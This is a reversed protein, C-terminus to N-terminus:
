QIAQQLFRKIIAVLGPANEGRMISEHNGASEAFEFHLGTNQWSNTSRDNNDRAAVHLLPYAIQAPVSVQRVLQENTRAVAYIRKIRDLTLDVPVLKMASAYNYVNDIWGDTSFDVSESLAMPLQLGLAQPLLSAPNTKMVAPHFSDLMILGHIRHGQAQLREALSLALPGGLSQGILTWERIGTSVAASAYLEMLKALDAIPQVGEEVGPSRLGYIGTNTGWHQRLDQYCLVDGGVPHVFLLAPTQADGKQMEVLPGHLPANDSTTLWQALAAVSSTRLLQAVPLSVQLQQSLRTVLRVAMLSNGGLDFFERDVSVSERGLVTAYAAAITAELANRPALVDGDQDMQPAPLNKKDIKGAPTTPFADLVVIVSPVMYEPIRERMGTKIAIVDSQTGSHHPVIYGVLTPGGPLDKRVVVASEAVLPQAALVAEVEGLEIRFGRIKVQNDIRDLYEVTGDQLWRGLDGTKYITSGLTDAFPNPVFVDATKEPNQWYGNGVGIGSLCIEGPIGPPVLRMQEDVVFVNMNPLPKGIPVSRQDVPLPQRLINQIVDDAAETPGYANVVPIDPFLVLWENVMPVPVAEGTAMLWKLSPLSREQAPLSKVHEILLQWAVPVLEVVNVQYRAVLSFMKEANTVDNLVVVAGGCTVPGLFQWVSIDSSTPATQLFNFSSSFELVTREAEIHNLAGDHRILAGKPLGTSGSTYLMYAVDTSAVHVLPVTDAQRSILPWDGDIFIPKFTTAEGLKEQLAQQSVIIKAQSNERMYTIREQPYHADMPVYAAGTKLIGIVGILFDCSREVCLGVLDGRKVDHELLYHALQNSARELEAYTLSRVDDVIALADPHEAVQKQFRVHLPTGLDFPTRTNNWHQLLLDREENETVWQLDGIRLAGQEVIQHSISEIRSIMGLDNFLHPHYYLSLRLKGGVFTVVFQVNNAPDSPSGYPDEIVEGALEASQPTAHFYNFMFGVRGRPAFKSQAGLSLLRYDKTKKQYERAHEWLAEIPSDPLVVARPVVFPVEQIYCGPQMFHSQTRGAMTEQLTFDSDPRCYLNVMLAYLGKFYIAPTMKHKRCYNRIGAWHEDSIFQDIRRTKGAVPVPPPVTFDLPEVNALTHQWFALVDATDKTSRDESVHEIYIDPVFDFPEENLIASYCAALQQWLTVLSVGDFLAHHASLAIAFHNDVTRLVKFKILADRIPDYPCYIFDYLYNDVAEWGELRDSMDVYEFSIHTDKPVVLYAEDLGPNGSPWYRARAVGYHTFYRQVAERWADVNLPRTLHAVWGHSSQLSGPNVINDVFMDRQMHTLPIVDVYQSRDLRLRTMIDQKSELQLSNLPIDPTDLLANLIREFQRWLADITERRYLDTNYELAATIRGEAHQLSLTLDFNSASRGVKLPEIDIGALSTASVNGSLEAHSFLQFAVQVIPTHSVSRKIPLREVIKDLPINGHAFADLTARKVQSLIDELTTNQRWKTRIILSNIFFGILNELDPHHRGATPVGVSVDGRDNYRAILIQWAALTVMFPTINQAKALQEIKTVLTNDLRYNVVDGHTTQVAPREFDPPITNLQPADRLNDEWYRVHEEFLDSELWERQWRAFDTYQVRPIPLILPTRTVYSAYHTFLERQLIGVSVGDSAIHHMCFQLIHRENGASDSPLVLVKCRLLDDTELNFVTSRDQILFPEALSEVTMKGADTLTLVALTHPQYPAIHLRPGNEGDLFFRARLISHRRLTENYAFNLADVDFQGTVLLAFPMNNITSGPNLQEFYWLRSQGYSLPLIGEQSGSRLVPLAVGRESADLVTALEAITSNEFLTRVSLQTNFQKNVRAIISTALLSHGGISFFNDEVGIQERKLVDQWIAALQVETETQPPQYTQADVTFNAAPLAKRDVKGNPTLPMTDLAVYATPVMYDPLVARLKERLTAVALEPIALVYYAALYKTGAADTQPHVVGEKIGDIRNLISEIEGLEVRFGRIKVQHDLRGLCEIVGNSQYRALDGTRYIKNEGGSKFPNDIFREETLDQRYLYGKAVGEGGIYLEGPVGIPVPKLDNDLIYILTNAVPRGIPVNNGVVGSVRHVTSYVTTETPGYGNYLEAGRELLRMAMVPPMPEGGCVVKVTRTPRWDNNVLMHFTAPTAQIFTIQHEDIAQMMQVVDMSQERTALVITAGYLLPMFMELGAIDFSLSTVALLRDQPAIGIDQQMAAMFNMFARHHIQVGKPNGTSGSTYIVYALSDPTLGSINFTIPLAAAEPALQDMPLLLTGETPLLSLLRAHTLIVSPKADKIVYEIRSRPYEPDIPIYACGAKLVAVLAVVMDTTRDCCVGVFGGPVVGRSRLLNAWRNSNAELTEFSMAGDIAVLATKKSSALASQRVAEGLTMLRDYDLSTQNWTHLLCHKEDGTLIDLKGLPLAPNTLWVEALRCFQGVFRDVTTRDFLDTNYQLTAVYTGAQEEFSLSLEYKASEVTSVFPTVSVASAMAGQVLNADGDFPINQLSMMVQFLPSRSMDRTPDIAEVIEEFPIDQHEFADRSSKTLAGVLDALSTEPTPQTRITVMNVFFGIIPELELRDRGAVPTGIAFDQQGSYRGLMSAFLSMLVNFPTTGKERAFTHIDNRLNNSLEFRVADGNFSQVPPRTRDTPLALAPLGDLARKWYTLKSRRVEESLHQRQWVAFDAYQLPLVEIPMPRGAAYSLYATVVERVFLSMSWGDTVIHHAVFVYVWHGPAVDILSSRFLPTTSLDFVNAMVQGVMRQLQFEADKVENGLSLQETKWQGEAAISQFPGMEDEGFWTRLSEHRNVVDSVARQLAVVNLDGKLHIAVPVNYAYTGPELRDLVWLRQQAYSLPLRQERSVRMLPSVEVLQSARALATALGEITPSEMLERLRLVVGFEKAVRSAIKTALLSHGGLAFFNDHVGVRPLRLVDAWITALRQETDDRPAVYTDESSSLIPKPLAKRDIKGNPTLPFEDVVTYSTPHMFIPLHRAVNDRIQTLVIQPDVDSRLVLWACLIQPGQEDVVGVFCDVVSVAQQIVAQIEGVEIRYGRLKVQQDIRGLYEVDGSPLYRALDGTRYIRGEGLHNSAFAQETLASNGVYGAGVGDGGIWLEGVAGVPLLERAAGLVYLQVNYNPRGIPLRDNVAHDREIVHYAAIDTCETPGYSNVLQTPAQRYWRELRAFNIPEGGLFVWRLSDLQKTEVEEVVGYFASPACNLWSIKAKAILSALADPEYEQFDPIILTAGVLLPAWLNKQTLDFGIASMLLLKDASTMTFAQTYWHLLNVVSRQYVAAGKPVGTSGSTFIVYFLDGPQGELSCSVGNQLATDIAEDVHLVAVTEPLNEVLHPRSLVLTIDAAAIIHAIRGAPYSADIPVYTAGARLIGLLATMLHISRDFCVGVCAGPQVGSARLHGALAASMRDLEVYTLEQNGCSVAIANAHQQASKAFAQQVTQWVPYAHRTNNWENLLQNREVDDLLEIESLSRDPAKLWSDALTIFHRSFREITELDFLDTNFQLNAAFQGESEAVTLTLDFKATEYGANLTSISLENVHGLAPLIADADLPINQLVLMVQFLPSRSMDRTPSIAEVIEEFPIDQHEFADQSNKALVHIWEALRINPEPKVRLTVTNVFFGVISELELSSRGAVPSGIAFDDQGSYRGLLAAFLGLLVNFPTASNTRAFDSLRASTESSLAFRTAAGNFTQLVPRPRDTPLALVPLEALTQKWYQMKEAIREETLMGRQWVAFDAYQLPLAQWQLDINNSLAVYAQIVDSIFLGMSWGDTVIHHAVFVYIWDTEGTQLLVSRFLPARSLNFSTAFTNRVVDLPKRHQDDEGESFVVQETDWQHASLIMQFPGDADERFCTRLAEHRNIADSIAKKLAPANLSGSIQIALPVNYASNGPVLKDLIWLRQQAYSLPIRMQRNARVIDAGAEPRAGFTIKEALAAVTPSLMLDRLSISVNFTKRVRSVIQTALLSHGGLDFFSDTVGINSTKLVEEWLTVLTREIQNRPLTKSENRSVQSPAPLAKRDVKGNPTLPWAPLTIIHTPVMYDPLRSRLHERVSASDLHEASVIYAILKEEHVTVLCDNINDLANLATEIEGLEIRLGRVKVQFDKRGIYEISGDPLQRCLDGTKYIKGNGFPNDLFVSGTLEPRDVYGNGVCIGAVCLEGVLGPAVPVMAHDVIHLECNPVPLGIPILAQESQINDLVHFAVVDTCETPGYSNVLSAVCAASSLWPYLLPLRIPEGGLVVWRLSAVSAFYKKSAVLPYFASPACNVLTVKHDAIANRVIEDDFEDMVPLVIQGGALLPAFLNKQTLDFGFASIILTVDHENLALRHTYWEQLNVEGAHHVSAGKPLGTSGSTYIVYIEDHPTPKTDLDSAPFAHLAPADSDVDFLWADTDGIKELQCAESIVAKAGSDKVIYQIRECPYSAEVPVYAAGSKLIGLVAVLMDVRRSMLIAVRTGKGVGQNQLAHALRNSRANLEGYSLAHDGCYVAVKGAHERASQEFWEVVTGNHQASSVVKSIKAVQAQEDPLIFKLDALAQVGDDVIQASLWAVRELYRHDDFATRDVWLQMLYTDPLEKIFCQVTREVHASQMHTVIPQGQWQHQALFNFYNFQFFLSATETAHLQALVSYQRHNRVEKRYASFADYCQRLTVEPQLQSLPIMWPVAQYYVGLTDDKAFARGNQVENFIFNGEPRCYHRIMLATLLRFYDVPHTRNKKCFQQIKCTHEADLEFDLVEFDASRSAGPVKVVNLPSCDAFKSRWFTLTEASDVEKRRIDVYDAFRDEWVPLERNCGLADYISAIKDVLFVMTTGDMVIHHAKIALCWENVAQKYLRFAILEDSHIDYATYIWSQMKSLKQAHPLSSIDEISFHLQACPSVVQYVKEGWPIDCPIFRSRYISYRDLVYQIANKLQGADIDFPLEIINGVSNQVTDPNMAADLYLLMQTDTLPQVLEATPVSLAHKIEDSSVFGLNRLLTSSSNIMAQMAMELHQVMRAITDRVFIDANYEIYGTLHQSNQSLSVIMDFKSAVEEIELREIKLQSLEEIKSYLSKDIEDNSVVGSFNQLQFGIQVIPAYAPNRDVQLRDVIKALPVEQHDFAQLIEQKVALLNDFLTKNADLPSRVILPDIFLGILNELEKQNRGAMPIGLCFDTQGSYRFMVFKWAAMLGMFLTIDNSRCFTAFHEAVAEGISFAHKGGNNGQVPPRPFDTPLALHSPIGKLHNDWYGLRKTFQDSNLYEQQWGAFDVYQVPLDPLPIPLQTVEKLYAIFIEKVFVNLSWGDSIIHHMAGSLLTLLPQQQEDQLLTCQLRFLPGRELDFTSMAQRTALERVVADVREVTTTVVAENFPVDPFEDIVVHAVGHEDAVFRSRLSEQRSMVQSVASRLAGVNLAGYLKFAIPITYAATGPTLQEFFWLGQQNYSLPLHGARDILPFAGQNVQQTAGQLFAVVADRRAKLEEKLENTLAGAPAKIKLKEGDLSLQVGANRLQSLLDVLTM